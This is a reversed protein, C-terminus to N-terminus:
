NDSRESLESLEPFEFYDLVGFSWLGLVCKGKQNGLMKAGFVCRERPSFKLLTRHFSRM